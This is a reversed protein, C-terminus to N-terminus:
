FYSESEIDAMKFFQYSMLHRGINTWNSCSKAPPHLIVHLYNCMSQLDFDFSSTFNWYPPRGDGSVPIFLRIEATSQSIQDFNTICISKRKKLILTDLLFQTFYTCFSCIYIYFVKQKVVVHLNWQYHCM